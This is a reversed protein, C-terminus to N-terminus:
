SQRKNAQAIGGAIFAVLLAIPRVAVSWAPENPFGIALGYIVLVAWVILAVVAVGGALNM